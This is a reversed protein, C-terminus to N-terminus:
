DFYRPDDSRITVESKEKNSKTQVTKPKITNFEMVKRLNMNGCSLCNFFVGFKGNLIELSQGCVCKLNDLMEQKHNVCVPVDQKNLIVGQKECFPCKDVKSQGYKKPIFM